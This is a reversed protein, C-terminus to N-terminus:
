RKILNNDSLIFEEAEIILEISKNVRSDLEDNNIIFSSVGREFGSKYSAKLLKRILNEIIKILRIM